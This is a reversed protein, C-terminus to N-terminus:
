LKLGILGKFDKVILTAALVLIFGIIAYTLTSKAKQAQEQNGGSTIYQIGGIIVFIICIIMILDIAYQTITTILTSVSKLDTTNGVNKFINM